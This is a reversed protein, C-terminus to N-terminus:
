RLSGIKKSLTQAIPDADGFARRRIALARDYATKARVPDRLLVAADGVGALAEALSLHEAGLLERIVAVAQDYHAAAAEGNGAALELQGMILYANATEPSRRGFTQV